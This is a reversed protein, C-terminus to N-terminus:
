AAEVSADTLSEDLARDAEVAEELSVEPFRVTDGVPRFQGIKWFDAHIVTAAVVFGGATPGDPGLIVPLDGNVNIAGVPYSNDLINSPHGGAIGGSQRAWEFKHSELRIGTRNSNRDVPWARGFLTELDHETLYDPAAQPGRMVRVDWQRSYEPRAGQALRRGDGYGGPEGLPLRDGQQLPRGDLGGLAGMTYTARSGFLLPVDFGGDIGLYFRFGAEPAIGIALEAGAPVRHSEWVAVEDGDVTLPAEAGCVAITADADLRARFNGLTIELTASSAPNGVLLNAARHALHDMPGAPFFGQAQMGRRGPYDQVTAQIGPEIIDVSRSM